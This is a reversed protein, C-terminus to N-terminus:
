QKEAAFAGVVNTHASSVDFEGAVGSPLKTNESEGAEADASPGYFQANWNGTGTAATNTLTNSFKATASTDDDPSTILGTGMPRRTLTVEFGLDRNGLDRSGDMFDTITGHIMNRNDPRIEVGAANVVTDFSEHAGFYAKLEANATFRGHYAPSKPDLVQNTFSLKRTVYRGAAGGKYTATLADVGDILDGPLVFEAGTGGGSFASFQYAPQPLRPDMPSQLWYGFYMYDESQLAVSEVNKDSEFTWNSILQNSLIRQDSINMETEVNTCTAAAACRFIGPIDGYAGRFSTAVNVMTLSVDNGQGADLVFVFPNAPLPVPGGTYETDSETGGYTLKRPTAAVINTYVTAKEPMAIPADRTLTQGIWGTIEHDADVAKRTYGITPDGINAPPTLAVTTTVGDTSRKVGITMLADLQMDLPGDAENLALAARTTKVAESNRISAKGGASTITYVAVDGDTDSAVVTVTVVCPYGRVLPLLPSPCEFNAEGVDLDDGPQITYIGPTITSYGSALLNNTIAESVVIPPETIKALKAKGDGSDTAMAMGGVYTVTSTGTEEGYEDLIATVTVVCRVGGAPCSVNIDGLDMNSGPEITYMGATIETLGATVMSRDVDGEATIKDTGSASLMTTAMGGASTVTTTGDENLEVTVVCPVGGPACTFTADYLVMEDGPDITYMGPRIILGALVISTDVDNSVALKDNGDDSNMATAMGGASTADRGDAVTVVCPVGGASCTFTADGFDMDEGPQITYTGETITLGVTVDGTYVDNPVALKANGADSNMATAAGGVSTATRGDAVTVVCPVGGASCTFTADGADMSGGPQITYTDATIELGVTVDSTDVTNSVALKDNGPVSNMATALGGVSTASRDDAVTVECSLGGEEPCTFTADYQDRSEGSLITFTGAPVILGVTVMSMDVTTDVTPTMVMDTGDSSDTSPTETSAQKSDGGGCGYVLVSFVVALCVIAIKRTITYM